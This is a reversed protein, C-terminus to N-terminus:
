QFKIKHPLVTVNRERECIRQLVAYTRYTAVGVCISLLSRIQCM